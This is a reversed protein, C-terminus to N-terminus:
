AARARRREPSRIRSTRRCCRATRLLRISARSPREAWGRQQTSVASCPRRDARTSTGCAAAPPRSGDCRRRCCAAGTPRRCPRRRRLGAAARRPRRRRIERVVVAGRRHAEGGFDAFVSIRFRAARPRRSRRSASDLRVSPASPRPAFPCRRRRSLQQELVAGGDVRALVEASLRRQHPRGRAPMGLHHLQQDRLPASTLAREVGIAVVLAVHRGLPTRLAEVAAAERRQEIGRALVADRAHVHQESCPASMSRGSGSPTEGSSSAIMFAFQSRAFCSISAPASTLWHSM